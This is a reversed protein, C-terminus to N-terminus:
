NTKRKFFLIIKFSLHKLVHKIKFNITQKESPRRIRPSLLKLRESKASQKLDSSTLNITSGSETGVEIPVMDEMLQTLNTSTM